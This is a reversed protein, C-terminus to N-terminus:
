MATASMLKLSARPKWWHRWAFCLMHGSLYCCVKPRDVSGVSTLTSKNHPAQLNSYPQPLINGSPHHYGNTQFSTQSSMTAGKVEVAQAESQQAKLQAAATQRKLLGELPPSHSAGKESKLLEGQNNDVQLDVFVDCTWQNQLVLIHSVTSVLPM